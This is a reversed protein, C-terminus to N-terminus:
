SACNLTLIDTLAYRYENLLDGDALTGKPLEQRLVGFYEDFEMPAKSRLIDALVELTVIAAVGPKLDYKKTLQSTLQWLGLQTDSFIQDM